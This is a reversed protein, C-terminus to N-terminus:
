NHWTLERTLLWGHALQIAATKGFTGWTSLDAIVASFSAIIVLGIYVLFPYVLMRPAPKGSLPWFILVFGVLAFMLMLGTYLVHSMNWSGILVSSLGGRPEAINSLALVLSSAGYVSTVPIKHYFAEVLDIVKDAMNEDHPTIPQTDEPM